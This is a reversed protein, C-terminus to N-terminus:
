QTNQEEFELIVEKYQSNIYKILETKLKKPLDKFKEDLNEVIKYNEFEEGRLNIHYIYKRHDYFVICTIQKHDDAMTCNTFPIFVAQKGSISKLAINSELLNILSMLVYPNYYILTDSYNKNTLCVEIYNIIGDVRYHKWFDDSGPEFNEALRCPNIVKIELNNNGNKDSFTKRILLTDEISLKLKELTQLDSLDFQGANLRNYLGEAECLSFNAFFDDFREKTDVVWGKETAIRPNCDETGPNDEIYNIKDGQEDAINDDDHLTALLTNLAENDFQNNQINVEQLKTNQSLDLTTLQNGNCILDRVDNGTITITHAASITYNRRHTTWTASLTIKESPKGDGWNIVAIGNGGLKVSVNRSSTTMTMQKDNAVAQIFLTLAFLITITKKM